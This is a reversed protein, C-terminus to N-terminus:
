AARVLDRFRALIQGATIGKFDRIVWNAGHAQLNRTGDRDVGLVLAFGGRQGAEVGAISDEVIGARVPDPEPVLQALCQLFIDPEPKGRLELRESVIGDVIADFLDRIGGQELVPVTNRSSSALGVRVGRDRLERVLRIAEQDVDVGGERLNRIFLQDKRSALAQITEAAPPDSPSGAPIEIDRSALFSVVGDARPKGDVYALYDTVQDFPRFPQGLRLARSSLYQDFLEKWAAAHVRATFTIVGDLDFIMAHLGDSM